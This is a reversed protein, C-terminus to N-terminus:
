SIMCLICETIECAMDRIIMSLIRKTGMGKGTWGLSCYRSLSDERSGLYTHCSRYSRTIQPSGPPM